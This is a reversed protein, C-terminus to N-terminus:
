MMMQQQWTLGSASSGDSPAPDGDRSTRMGRGRGAHGGRHGRGGGRGRSAGHHHPPAGDHSPYVPALPEPLLGVPQPAADASYVVHVGGRPQPELPQHPERPAQPRHGDRQGGRGGRRGGRDRAIMEQQQWSLGESSADPAYSPAPGQAPQPYSPYVHHAHAPQHAPYAHHAPVPGPQPQAHHHQQRHHSRPAHSHTPVQQTAPEMSFSPLPLSSPSPPAPIPEPGPGPIHVPQQHQHQPRRERERQAEQLLVNSTVQMVGEASRSMPAQAHGHGRPQGQGHTVRDASKHLSKGGEGQPRADGRRTHPAPGAGQGPPPGANYSPQDARPQYSRQQQQNNFRVERKKQPRVGALLSLNLVHKTDVTLGRMDSCGGHLTTGGLCEHDWLVDIRGQGRTGVVIGREGFPIPGSRLISCVRDGLVAEDAPNTPAKDQQQQQQPPRGRQMVNPGAALAAAKVQLDQFDSVTTIEIGRVLGSAPINRIIKKAPPQGSAGSAAHFQDVLQQMKTIGTRSLADSALAVKPLNPYELGKLWTRIESVAEHVLHKVQRPNVVGAGPASPSVGGASGDALSVGGMAGALQDGGSRAAFNAPGPSSPGEDIPGIATKMHQPINRVVDAPLLDAANYSEEDSAEVVEWVRPFKAKYEEIIAIARETFEWGGTEMKRSYGPVQLGKGSFKMNLGLNIRGPEFFVSATIKSLILPSTRVRRAVHSLSHYEDRSQDVVQYIQDFPEPVITDVEISVKNGPLHELPRAISGYFSSTHPVGTYILDQGIPMMEAMSLPSERELLRADSAVAEYPLTLQLPIMERTKSFLKSRTGDDSASIGELCMVSLMVRILSADIGKKTILRGRTAFIEENFTTPNIRTRPCTAVDLDRIFSAPSSPAAPSEASAPANAGGKGSRAIADIQGRPLTIEQTHDTVGVVIAEKLYPWNVYCRQGLMSAAVAEANHISSEPPISNRDMNPLNSDPTLIKVVVTEQQSPRGFINASVHRTQTEFPMTQLTPFGSPAEVGLKTGPLLHFVNQMDPKDDNRTIGDPRMAMLHPPIDPLTIEECRTMCNQLPTFNNGPSSWTGASARDFQFLLARGVRNRFREDESLQAADVLNYADVLRKEDIFPILAIGEWANKKGTMDVEFDVPYYDLIPSRGEKMLWRYQEPVCAGSAAPLVALLQQYPLFPAGLIHELNYSPLDVMDAALPTYHFPFFWSWSVCGHHYYNMVWMLGELYKQRLTRHWEKFEGGNANEGLTNFKEKYYSDKWLDDAPEDDDDDGFHERIRQVLKKGEFQSPELARMAGVGSASNSLSSEGSSLNLNLFESGAGEMDRKLNPNSLKLLADDDDQDEDDSIETEGRHLYKLGSPMEDYHSREKEGVRQLFMEVRKLNLKAGNTLYGGMAPLIEKYQEFMFTLAGEAIDLCPLSPLFDNGVFFCMLIFDDVIRELDYAFPLRTLPESSSTIATPADVPTSSSSPATNPEFELKFELDLYERVLSLHLLHFESELNQAGATTSAKRGRPKNLVEERLLSFHPEHTTLGLMILDADLGYLCHSQNPDWDPQAKMHRIYEMIKHEGEGPVDHGSFIVQVKRWLTDEKIKKSIFFQLHKALAGMFPTGPTICNSDFPADGGSLLGDETVHIDSGGGSKAAKARAMAVAEAADRASRFRRQRQQNMKARPAPGDIAMYFLRRPKIIHFLKDIYQIIAIFMEKETLVNLMNDENPHSCQHIIGNMDLYLNDFEPALTMSIRQNILPYRESLWRFFRPVGM